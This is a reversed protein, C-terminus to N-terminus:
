VISGLTTLKLVMADRSVAPKRALLPKSKKIACLGPAPIKVFGDIKGLKRNASLM